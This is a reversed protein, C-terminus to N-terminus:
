RVRQQSRAPLRASVILVVQYRTVAAAARDQHRRLAKAGANLCRMCINRLLAPREDSPTM